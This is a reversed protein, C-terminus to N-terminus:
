KKLITKKSRHWGMLFYVERGGAERRHNEFDVLPDVMEARVLLREAIMEIVDEGWAIATMYPLSRIHNLQRIKRLNQVTKKPQDGMEIRKSAHIRRKQLRFSHSRLMYGIMSCNRNVSIDEGKRHHDINVSVLEGVGVRERRAVAVGGGAVADREWCCGMRVVVAWGSEVCGEWVEVAM